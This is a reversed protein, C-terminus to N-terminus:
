EGRVEITFLNTLQNGVLGQLHIDYPPNPFQPLETPLLMVGLTSIAGLPGFVFWPAELYFTGWKHQLPTGLLSFGIFVGVPTAGPAGLVYANIEGEPIFSGTCYFHAHFEDAGMDVSSDAIRPDGEFDHHDVVTTNLGTGRCPSVYLIHLDRAAINVFLPDADLMNAGWNVTSEADVFVNAQGGQIDSHSITFISDDVCIQPGQPATNGWFISNTVTLLSLSSTIAGGKQLATNGVMSNNTLTGYYSDKFFLAGAFGQSKNDTFRNNTIAPSYDNTFTAAGGTINALNDHFLNNSVTSTCHDCSLGGGTPADNSTFTNGSVIPLSNVCRLGGGSQTASNDELVNGSIVLDSDAGVFVGGGETSTNKTLVNDVVRVSRDCWIGGGQPASNEILTNNTVQEDGNLQGHICIGGGKEGAVNYKLINDKVVPSGYCHIAGGNKTTVNGYLINHYIIAKNGCWIGGAFDGTADNQNILNDKILVESNFSCVMGGKIENGFITNKEITLTSDECGLGGQSNESISNDSIVGTSTDCQIGGGFQYSINGLITNTSIDVDTCGKTFIGAGLDATNREILNQTILPTCDICIIGGGEIDSQNYRITNGLITPTSGKDCYIGGGLESSRNTRLINYRVQPSGIGSLCIAGGGWPVHNNHIINNVLTPSTDRCYVGGGCYDWEGPATEHWTGTGNTLTFGELVSGQGENSVFRVVSGKKMGNIITQEPGIKSKVTIAKGMFNINEPYTEPEVMITDGNQAVFIAGQITTYDDPVILTDPYASAIFLLLSVVIMLVRMIKRGEKSLEAKM